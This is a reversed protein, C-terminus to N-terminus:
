ASYCLESQMRTKFNSGEEYKITTYIPNAWSIQLRLSPKNLYYICNKNCRQKYIYPPSPTLTLPAVSCIWAHSRRGTRYLMNLATLHANFTCQLVPNWGTMVNRPHLSSELPTSWTCETFNDPSDPCYWLSKLIHRKVPLYCLVAFCKM